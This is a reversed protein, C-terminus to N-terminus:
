HMLKKDMLICNTEILSGKEDFTLWEGDKKNTVYNGEESYLVQAVM